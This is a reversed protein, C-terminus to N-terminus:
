AFGEHGLCAASLRKAQRPVAAWAKFPPLANWFFHEQGAGKVPLRATAIGNHPKDFPVSRIVSM